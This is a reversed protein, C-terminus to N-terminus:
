GIKRIIAEVIEKFEEEETSDDPFVKKFVEMISEEMDIYFGGVSLFFNIPNYMNLVNNIYYPVGNNPDARAIGENAIICDTITNGQCDTEPPKPNTSSMNLKSTTSVPRKSIADPYKTDESLKPIPKPDTPKSKTSDVKQTPPTPRTFHVEHNNKNQKPDLTHGPILATNLDVVL